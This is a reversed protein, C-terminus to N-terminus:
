INPPKIPVPNPDTVGIRDIDQTQYSLLVFEAPGPRPATKCFDSEIQHKLQELKTRNNKLENIEEWNSETSEKISLAEIQKDLVEIRSNSLDIDKKVSNVADVIRDNLGNTEIAKKFCDMAERDKYMALKALGKAYYAHGLVPRYMAPQITALQEALAIGQDYKAIAKDYEEDQMHILAQCLYPNPENPWLELMKAIDNQAKERENLFLYSQARFEYAQILLHQDPRLEIVKGYDKAANEYDQLGYYISARASYNFANNPNLKIATEVDELAKDYENKATLILSRQSYNFDLERKLEISKNIDNLAGEYDKSCFKILALMNYALEDGPNKEIIYNFDKLSEDKLGLMWYLWGRYHYYDVYEPDLEILKSYDNVAQEYHKYKINLEARDLLLTENSPFKKLAKNLSELSKEYNGQEYYMYALLGYNHTQNPGLEILKDYDSEAESYKKMNFYAKAREAYYFPKNPSLEIAKSLYLIAKEYQKNLVYSTGRNGFYEGYKEKIANESLQGRNSSSSLLEDCAIEDKMINDLDNAEEYIKIREGYYSCKMYPDPELEIVTMWDNLAKDNIGLAKYAKARGSYYISSTGNLSIARDYLQISKEYQGTEAYAEAAFYCLASNDPNIALAKEYYEIEKEHTGAKHMDETAKIYSRYKEELGTEATCESTLSVLSLALALALLNQKKSKM